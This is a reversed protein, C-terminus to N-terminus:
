AQVGSNASSLRSHISPDRCMDALSISKRVFGGTSSARSNTFSSRGTGRSWTKAGPASFTTTLSGRMSIKPSNLSSNGEELIEGVSDKEKGTLARGVYAASQLANRVNLYSSKGTDAVIAKVLLRLSAKGMSFVKASEEDSSEDAGGETVNGDMTRGNPHEFWCSKNTCRTGFKCGTSKMNLGGANGSPMKDGINTTRSWRRAPGTSKLASARDRVSSNRTLTRPPSTAADMGLRSGRQWNSPQQELAASTANLETQGTVIRVNTAFPKPPSHKHNWEADFLVKHGETVTNGAEKSADDNVLNQSHFLYIVDGSKIFCFGRAQMGSTVEGELNKFKSETSIVQLGVAKLKNNGNPQTTFTVSSGTDIFAKAEDSLESFHFFLNAHEDSSLFGYKFNCIRTIVGSYQEASAPTTASASITTSSM